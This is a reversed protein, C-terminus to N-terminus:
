LARVYEVLPAITSKDTFDIIKGYTELFVPDEDHREAPPKKEISKKLASMMIRHILTMKTYDLGGRLHFIKIKSLLEKTINKSIIDSYDTISPDAAGVTFVVLSKCPNKTVLNVGIIGGAYLGGGYVVVDYEALRVPKISSAEYLSADLESAIWEAYQRTTGYKSKYIVAIKTVIM